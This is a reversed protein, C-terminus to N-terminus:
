EEPLRAVLGELRARATNIKEQLQRNEGELGAVRTRLALNEGRLTQCLALVQDIKHDLADLPDNM